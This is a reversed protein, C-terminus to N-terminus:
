GEVEEGQGLGRGVGRGEGAVADGKRLGLHEADDDVALVLGAVEELKRDVIAGAADGADEPEVVGGRGVEGALAWLTDSQNGIHRIALSGQHLQTRDSSHVAPDRPVPAHHLDRCRTNRDLPVQIRLDQM